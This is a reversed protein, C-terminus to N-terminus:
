AEERHAFPDTRCKYWENANYLGQNQRHSPAEIAARLTVLTAAVAEAIKGLKSTLGSTLTERSTEKQINM